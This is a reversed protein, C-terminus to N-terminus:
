HMAKVYNLSESIHQKILRGYLIGDKAALAELMARHTKEAKAIRSPLSCYIRRTYHTSNWLESIIKLLTPSEAFTYSDNHFKYDLFLWKELDGEQSAQEMNKVIDTLARLGEDNIKPATMRAAMDELVMRIRYREEFGDLDLSLVIARGREIIVLGESELKRLADRVPARSVGYRNSIETQSLRQGPKLKADLIEKKLKIFLAESLNRYELEVTVNSDQPM